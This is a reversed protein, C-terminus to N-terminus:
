RVKKAVKGTYVRHYELVKNLTDRMKVALEPKNLLSIHTTSPATNNGAADLQTKIDTLLSFQADHKRADKESEHLKGDSSQYRRVCKVVM